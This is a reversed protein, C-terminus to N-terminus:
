GDGESQGPEGVAETPVNSFVEAELDAASEFTEAHSRGVVDALPEEGDPYVLTVESVAERANENSLPYALSEIVSDLEDLRIESTM